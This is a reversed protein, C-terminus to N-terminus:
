ITSENSCKCYKLGEEQMSVCNTGMEQYIGVRKIPLLDENGLESLRPSQLRSITEEKCIKHKSMCLIVPVSHVASCYHSVVIAVSKVM